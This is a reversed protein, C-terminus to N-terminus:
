NQYGDRYCPPHHEIERKGPESVCREIRKREAAAEAFRDFRVYGLSRLFVFAMLALVVLLLASQSSNTCTSRRMPSHRM